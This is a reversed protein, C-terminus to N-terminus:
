SCRRKASHISHLLGLMPKSCPPPRNASLDRRHILLGSIFMCAAVIMPFAQPGLADGAELKELSLAARFYITAGVIAFAALIWGAM